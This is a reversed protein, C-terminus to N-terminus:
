PASVPQQVPRARRGQRRVTRGGPYGAPQGLASHRLDRSNEDRPRALGVHRHRRHDLCLRGIVAILGGTEFIKPAYADYSFWWWFFDYPRYVPWGLLMFWPTGLEPQYALASATWQTAGWIGALVLLFVALIQGWLIKTAAM